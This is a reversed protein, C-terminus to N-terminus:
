TRATRRNMKGTSKGDITTESRVYRFSNVDDFGHQIITKLKLVRTKPKNIKAKYDQKLTGDTNEESDAVITANGVVDTGVNRDNSDAWRRIIM